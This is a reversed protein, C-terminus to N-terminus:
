ERKLVFVYYCIYRMTDITKEYKDVFVVEPVQYMHVHGYKTYLSYIFKDFDTKTSLIIDM